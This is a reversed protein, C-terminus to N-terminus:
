MNLELRAAETLMNNNWPPDWVLEVEVDEVLPLSRVKERVSAVIMPAVGCGPNTLTMKIFVRVRNEPIPEIRLDYVLGLDVINVPLEPDYVNRLVAYVGEETVTPTENM